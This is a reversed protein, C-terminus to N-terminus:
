SKLRCISNHYVSEEGLAVHMPIPIYVYLLSVAILDHGGSYSAQSSLCYILHNSFIGNNTGQHLLIAFHLMISCHFTLQEASSLM